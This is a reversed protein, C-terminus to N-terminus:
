KQVAADRCPACFTKIWGPGRAKGPAGCNECTTFAEREADRIRDRMEPTGAGIYFRLGGFKEKIQHLDRDWGMTILDTALKDIIPIWGEGVTGDMGTYLGTPNPRGKGGDLGGRGDNMGPGIRHKTVWEQFKGTDIWDVSMIM